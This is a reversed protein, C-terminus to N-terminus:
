RGFRSIPHRNRQTARAFLIAQLTIGDYPSTFVLLIRPHLFPSSGATLRLNFFESPIVIILYASDPIKVSRAQLCFVHHATDFFCLNSTPQINPRRILSVRRSRM